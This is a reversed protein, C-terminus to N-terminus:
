NGQLFLQLVTFVSSGEQKKELVWSGRDKRQESTKEVLSNKCLERWILLRYKITQQLLVWNEDSWIQKCDKSNSFPSSAVTIRNDQVLYYKNCRQLRSKISLLWVGMIIMINFNKFTPKQSLSRYICIQFVPFIPLLTHKFIPNPISVASYIYWM